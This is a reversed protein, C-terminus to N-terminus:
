AKLRKEIQSIRKLMGFLGCRVMILKIKEIIPIPLKSISVEYITKGIDTNNLLYDFTQKMNKRNEMCYQIERNYYRYFMYFKEYKLADSLDPEDCQEFVNQMWRCYHSASIEWNESYGHSMSDQLVRYQYDVCESAFYVNDAYLFCPYSIAADEGDRIAEDLNMLAKEIIDKRIVKAWIAPAIRRTMRNHNCLMDPYISQILMGKDYFGSPITEFREKKYDEYWFTNGVVVIDTNYCNIIEAIKEYMHSGIMDDSDVFGIYRGSANALGAKRASILGGNKKNVIKVRSDSAAYKQCLALSHDTSGDNVLIIEIDTYSQNLISKVCEDLYKEQNFIPVIISFLPM